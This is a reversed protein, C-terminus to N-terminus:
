RATCPKDYAHRKGFNVSFASADRYTMMPKRAPACATNPQRIRPSDGDRRKKAPPSARLLVRTMCSDAVQRRGLAGGCGDHFGWANMMIAM